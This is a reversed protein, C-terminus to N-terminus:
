VNHLNEFNIIEISVPGPCIAPNVLWGIIQIAFSLLTDLDPNGNPSLTCLIRDLSIFFISVSVTLFFIISIISIQYKCKM